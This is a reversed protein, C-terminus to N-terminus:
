ILMCVGVIGLVMAFIVRLLNSDADISLRSGIQAGIITVISLSVALSINLHGAISHGLFGSFATVPIMMSSTAVAIKMPINFLVVMIPVTLWGGALGLMGSTFGVILMLPIAVMMNVTYQYGFFDHHFNWGSLQVGVGKFAKNEKIMFFSALFLACAFVIHLTNINFNSALMGGAFAGLMIPIELEVFLKFDVLDSKYFNYLASMQATTIMILSTTAATHFDVGCSILIPVYLFGGGLGLMTFIISSVLILVILKLIINHFLDSYSQHSIDTTPGTTNM